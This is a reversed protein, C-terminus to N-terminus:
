IKMLIGDLKTAFRQLKRARSGPSISVHTQQLKKIPFNIRFLKRKFGKKIYNANKATNLGLTFRNEWELVNYYKLFPLRQLGQSWKQLYHLYADSSNKTLFRIKSLQQKFYKKIYDTCKVAKLGLIFRSEWELITYHKLFPLRQLGRAVSRSSVSFHM